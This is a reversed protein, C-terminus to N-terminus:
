AREREHEGDTLAELSTWLCRSCVNPPPVDRGPYLKAAIKKKLEIAADDIPGSCKICSPRTM